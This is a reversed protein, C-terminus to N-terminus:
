DHFKAFEDVPVRETRLRNAPAENDPHGLAMGSLILEEDPIGLIEHVTSGYRCWAQQPCTELGYGRAVAMVNAMFMGCDLWSGYLLHRNMTFFLGLPANFFEFNELMAAFRAPKDERAIGRLAYLDYGVKRRRSVFPEWWPKPSYPYELSTRGAIAAEKVAAELREKTRGSVVHVM